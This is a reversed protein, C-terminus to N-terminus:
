EDLAKSVLLELKAYAEKNDLMYQYVKESGQLKPADELYSLTSWGAGAVAIYGLDSAIQITEFIPDLGQGFRLYCDIGDVPGYPSKTINYHLISGVQKQNEGSGVHWKDTYKIRLVYNAAYQIKLGGSEQLGMTKGSTDAILHSTICVISRNLM